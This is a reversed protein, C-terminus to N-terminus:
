VKEKISKNRLPHYNELDGDEGDNLRGSFPLPQFSVFGKPQEQIEERVVVIVIVEKLLMMHQLVYLGKIQHLM